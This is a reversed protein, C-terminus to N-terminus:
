IGRWILRTCKRINTTRSGSSKGGTRDNAVSNEKEKQGKKEALFTYILELPIMHGVKYQVLSDNGKITERVINGNEDEVTLGEEPNAMCCIMLMRLKSMPVAYLQRRQMLQTGIGDVVAPILPIKLVETDDVFSINILYEPGM